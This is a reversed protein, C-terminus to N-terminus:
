GEVIPWLRDTYNDNRAFRTITHNKHGILCTKTVNLSLLFFMNFQEQEQNQNMQWSFNVRNIKVFGNDWYNYFFIYTLVARWHSRSRRCALMALEGRLGQGPRWSCSLQPRGPEVVGWGAPVALLHPLCGASRYSPRSAGITGFTWVNFNNSRKVSYTRHTRCHCLLLLFYIVNHSLRVFAFLLGLM